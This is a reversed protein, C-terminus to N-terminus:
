KMPWSLIIKRKEDKSGFLYSKVPMCCASPLLIIWLIMGILMMQNCIKWVHNVKIEKKSYYEYNLVMWSPTMVLIMMILALFCGSCYRLGQWEFNCVNPNAWTYFETFTKLITFIATFVFCLTLGRESGALILRHFSQHDTCNLNTQCEWCGLGDTGRKLAYLGCAATIMLVDGCLTTLMYITNNLRKWISLIPRGKRNLKPKLPCIILRTKVVVQILFILAAAVYIGLYLYLCVKFKLLLPDLQEKTWVKMLNCYLDRSGKRFIGNALKNSTYDTLLKPYTKASQFGDIFM